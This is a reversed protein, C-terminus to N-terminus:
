VDRPRVSTHGSMLDVVTDFGVEPSPDLCLRANIHFSVRQSEKDGPADVPEARVDRLRPEFRNIIEEIIKGMARRQGGKSADISTFDPLGYSAVSNLLEAYREPVGQHSQRTNLLDELDRRVTEVMRAADYGLLDGAGSSGPDILRDLMSPLLGQGKDVRSM